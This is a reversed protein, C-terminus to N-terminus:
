GVVLPLIEDILKLEKVVAAYANRVVLVILGTAFIIATTSHRTPM